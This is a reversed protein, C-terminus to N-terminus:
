HLQEISVFRLIGTLVEGGCLRCATLFSSFLNVYTKWGEGKNPWGKLLTVEGRSCFFRIMDWAVISTTKMAYHDRPGHRLCQFVLPSYLTLDPNGKMQPFFISRKGVTLPLKQLGAIIGLKWVRSNWCIWPEYGMIWCPDNRVSFGGVEFTEYLKIIGWNWPIKRHSPIRSSVSEVQHNKGVWRFFICVDFQSDNGWPDPHFDFINSNGGGLIRNLVMRTVVWGEVPPQHLSHMELGREYPIGLFGHVQIVLEADFISHFSAAPKRKLSEWNMSRQPSQRM